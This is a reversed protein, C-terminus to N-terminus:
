AAELPAARGLFRNWFRLNEAVTLSPKFADQHALYHAEEGISAEPDLGALTVHGKAPRILGAILRLLTTKGSGNPGTVLLAQGAGIAFNVDQFIPLGGRICALNTGSLMM